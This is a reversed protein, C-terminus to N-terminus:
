RLLTRPSLQEQTSPSQNPRCARPFCRRTALTSEECKNKLARHRVMTTSQPLSREARCSDGHAPTLM